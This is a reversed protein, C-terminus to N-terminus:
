NMEAAFVAARNRIQRPAAYAHELLAGIQRDDLSDIGFHLRGSEAQFQEDALVAKFAQRYVAM